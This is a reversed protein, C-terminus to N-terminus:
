WRATWAVVLTAAVLAPGGVRVGVQAFRRAGVDVGVARASEIWLLSALAGTVLVVPGVNVGVLVAWV